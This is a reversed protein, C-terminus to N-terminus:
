AVAESNKVIEVKVEKRPKFPKHKARELALQEAAPQDLAKVKIKDEITATRRVRVIFEHPKPKQIVPEPPPPEAPRRHTAPQRLLDVPKKHSTPPKAPKVAKVRDQEPLTPEDILQYNIGIVKADEEGPLPRPFELYLAGPLQKFGILGRDKKGTEQVVTLVRNQKIAETLSPNDQPKTWLTLTKPRGSGRVLDGFRITNMSLGDVPAPSSTLLSFTGPNSIYWLRKTNLLSTPAKTATHLNPANEHFQDRRLPRM